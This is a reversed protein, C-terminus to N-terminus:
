TDGLVWDPLDPIEVHQGALSHTCDSLFQFIGGVLFSHCIKDTDKGTLISPSITPRDINGDWTWAPSKKDTNVPLIHLGSGGDNFAKCGPCVFMLADYHVGHDDVKRIMSKMKFRPHFTTKTLANTQSLLAKEKPMLFVLVNLALEYDEPIRRTFIKRVVIRTTNM